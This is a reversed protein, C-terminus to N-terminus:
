LRVGVYIGVYLGLLLVALGSMLAYFRQSFVFRAWAFYGMLLALATLGLTWDWASRQQRWIDAAFTPSVAM